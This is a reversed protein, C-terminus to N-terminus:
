GAELCEILQGAVDQLYSSTSHVVVDAPRQLVQETDGSIPIGWPADGTGALEGLDRGIKAPDKDIAGVLELAQKQRMLRAISAGIPGVGYQVVRIKKRM